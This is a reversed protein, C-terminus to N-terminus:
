FFLPHVWKWPMIWWSQWTGNQITAIWGAPGWVPSIYSPVRGWPCSMANAKTSSWSTITQGNWWKLMIVKLYACLFSFHATWLWSPCFFLDHGLSYGSLDLNSTLSVLWTTFLIFCWFQNSWFVTSDKDNSATEFPNPLCRAPFLYPQICRDESLPIWYISASILDGGTGNTKYFPRLCRGDPQNGM